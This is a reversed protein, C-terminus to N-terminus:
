DIKGLGANKLVEFDIGRNSCCNALQGNVAVAPITEIGYEKAKTECEKTECKKNLDYIVVECNKCAQEKVQQVANDCLYCGATFVEVIRKAM